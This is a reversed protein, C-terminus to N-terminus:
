SSYPLPNGIRVKAGAPTFDVMATHLWGEAGMLGM